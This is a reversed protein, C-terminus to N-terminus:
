CFESQHLAGIVESNCRKHEEIFPLNSCPLHLKWLASLQSQIACSLGRRAADRSLRLGVFMPFVLM